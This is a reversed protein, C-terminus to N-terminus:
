RELIIVNTRGKKIKKIVKKDELETIILSIKAESWPFKARIDKQTVRGGSEKIFNVIIDLEEDLDSGLKKASRMLYLIVFILILWAILVYVWISSIKTLEQPIDIQDEIINEEESFDSELILDLNFEGESTITINEKISYREGEDYLATIVYEGNPLNFSYTGDRSVITQQPQTNVEVIVGELKELYPSYITGQVRAALVAQSLVLVLLISILIKKMM